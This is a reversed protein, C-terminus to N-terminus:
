FFQQVRSRFALANLLKELVRLKNKFDSLTFKADRWNLKMWLRAFISGAPCCGPCSHMVIKLRADYFFLARESEIARICYSYELALYRSVFVVVGCCQEIAWDASLQISM